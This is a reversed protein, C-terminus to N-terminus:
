NENIISWITKTRDENLCGLNYFGVDIKDLFDKLDLHVRKAEELSEYRGVESYFEIPPLMFNYHFVNHEKCRKYYERVHNIFTLSRNRAFDYYSCLHLPSDVILYPVKNYKLFEEEAQKGFISFQSFPTMEKKAYIDNKVKELCLEVDIGKTKIFHAMDYATTTKQTSPGGLLNIVKTEM